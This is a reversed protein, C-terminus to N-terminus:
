AYLFCSNRRKKEVRGCRRVLINTNVEESTCSGSNLLDLMRLLLDSPPGDPGPSCCSTYFCRDDSQAPSHCKKLTDLFGIKVSPQTALVSVM